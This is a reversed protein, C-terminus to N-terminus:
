FAKLFSQATAIRTTMSTRPDSLISQNVRGCVVGVLDHIREDALRQVHRVVLVDAPQGVLHPRASAVELVLVTRAELNLHRQDRGLGDHAEDYLTPKIIQTSTQSVSGSTGLPACSFDNRRPAGMCCKAGRRFGSRDLPWKIM